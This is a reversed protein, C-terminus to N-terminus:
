IFPRSMQPRSATTGPTWSVFMFRLKVVQVDISLMVILPAGFVDFTTTISPTFTISSSPVWAWTLGFMSATPSTCTMELPNVASFPRLLPPKIMM